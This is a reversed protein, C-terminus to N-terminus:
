TIVMVFVNGRVNLNMNIFNVQALFRYVFVQKLQGFRYVRYISQVDYSPNWSADFIIVRNAAVLNIGLSGARTSILFLRGSFIFILLICDSSFSQWSLYEARIKNGYLWYLFISWRYRVNAANNFQDAWKKRLPASTSGDLRYYDVNKIWSGETLVIFCLFWFDFLVM